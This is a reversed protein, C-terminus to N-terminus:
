IGFLRAWRKWIPAPLSEDEQPIEPVLKKLIKSEPLVVIIEGERTLGLKNRIEREISEPRKAEEARKELQRKEKELKDVRRYIKEIGERVKSIKLLNRGLSILLVL